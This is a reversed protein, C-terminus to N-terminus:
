LDSSSKRLTYLMAIILLLVAVLAGSQSGEAVQIGLDISYELPIEGHTGAIASDWEVKLGELSENFLVFEFVITSSSAGGELTAGPFEEYRSCNGGFCVRAFSPDSGQNQIQATFNVSCPYCGDSEIDTVESLSQDTVVLHAGRMPHVLLDYSETRTNGSSDAASAIVKHNGLGLLSSNVDLTEISSWDVNTVLDTGDVSVTWTLNVIADLDDFSKSFELQFVDNEHAEDDQKLPIGNVMVDMMITPPNADLVRIVWEEYAINGADDSLQLLMSYSTPDRSQHREEIGLHAGNVDAGQNATFQFTKQQVGLQRWGESINTFLELKVPLGMEDSANVDFILESGADVEVVFESLDHVRQESGTVVSLAGTWEPLIGDIGVNDYWHSAMGHSDTCSAVLSAVDGHSFGHDIPSFDFWPNQFTALISEDKSVSWEILPSELPGDNCMASFSSHTDLPITSSTTPFRSASISPPFNEGITIRIDYAVPAQSRNVTFNRPEGSFIEIMPSFQIEWNEPLTISLPLEEILAGVRPLDLIRMTRGDTVGTLNASESWRWTGNSANVPGAEPPEVAVENGSPASMPTYDFTCCGGVSADTWNRALAVMAAFDNAESSDVWGDSDGLYLDIQERLGLSQNELLDTGYEESVTAQAFWTASLSSSAAIPASFNLFSQGQVPDTGNYSTSSQPARPDGLSSGEPIVFYAMLATSSVLLFCLTVCANAYREM